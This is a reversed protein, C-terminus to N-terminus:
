LCPLNFGCGAFVQHSGYYINGGLLIAQVRAMQTERARLVHPVCSQRAQLGSARRFFILDAQLPHQSQNGGAFKGASTATGCSWGQPWERLNGSRCDAILGGQSPSVVHPNFRCILFRTANPILRKVSAQRIRQGSELDIGSGRAPSRLASSSVSVRSRNARPLARFDSSEMPLVPLFRAALGNRFHESCIRCDPQLKPHPRRRCKQM